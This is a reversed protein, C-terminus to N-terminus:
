VFYSSSLYQQKNTNYKINVCDFMSKTLLNMIHFLLSQPNKEICISQPNILIKM